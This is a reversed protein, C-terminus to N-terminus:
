TTSSRPRYHATLTIIRQAMKLISAIWGILLIATSVDIKKLLYDLSDFVAVFGRRHYTPLFQASVGTGLSHQHFLDM